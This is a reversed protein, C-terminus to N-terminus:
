LRDHQRRLPGGGGARGGKGAPTHAYLAALSERRRRRRASREDVSGGPLLVERLFDADKGMRLTRVASKLNACDIQLRVYGTCSPATGREEAAALMEEFMAKDLVFDALQPNATRALTNRAELMATGFSEPCSATASRTTSSWCSGPAIRGADSLLASRTWGM